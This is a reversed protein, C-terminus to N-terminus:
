KWSRVAYRDDENQKQVEVYMREFDREWILWNESGEPFEAQKKRANEISEEITM